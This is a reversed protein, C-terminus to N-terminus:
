EERILALLGTEQKFVTAMTARTIDRYEQAVLVADHIPLAVIGVEKLRLLISVLINSERPQMKMGYGSELYQAIPSHHKRILALVDAAKVRKDKIAARAESPLRRFPTSTSFAAVMALKMAERPVPSMAKRAEPDFANFAEWDMWLPPLLYADDEFPMPCNAEAYLLRVLMQGFDLSVVPSGNIKISPRRDKARIDEIWFAGYLRGGQDFTGNSFIRRLRRKRTDVPLGEKDLCSCTIDARAIFSNISEMEKRKRHTTETDTYDKDIAQGNEGKPERLIITEKGTIAQTDSEDVGAAELREILRKSPSITSARYSGDFPNRGGKSLDILGVAPSQLLDVVKVLSEKMLPSAYREQKKGLVRKSLSLWLMGAQTTAACHALDAILAEVQELFCTLADPRRARGRNEAKQLETQIEKILMKLPGDKARRFPNFPREPIAPGTFVEVGAPGVDAQRQAKTKM